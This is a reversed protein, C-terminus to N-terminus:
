ANAIAAVAPLASGNSSFVGYKGGRYGYITVGLCYGSERAKKVMAGDAAAQQAETSKPSDGTTETLPRGYESIIWPKGTLKHGEEVLSWHVLTSNPNAGGGDYPHNSFADVVNVIGPDAKLMYHGWTNESDHGGDFSALLLAKSGVEQMVKKVARLQKCYAAANSESLASGGFFWSGGPENLYEYCWIDPHAKLTNRANNEATSISIAAVGSTNYGSELYIVGIGANSYTSTNGPTELRVAAEHSGACQKIASVEENINWGGANIGRKFVGTKPPEEHPPEEHPPPEVSAVTVKIRGHAKSWWESAGTVHADIWEHGVKGKAIGGVKLGKPEYLPEAGASTACLAFDVLGPSSVVEVGTKDATLALKLESAPPSVTISAEKANQKVVAWVRFVTQGEGIPVETSTKTSELEPLKVWTGEAGVKKEILWNLLNTTESATWTLKAQEGEKTVTFNVAETAM